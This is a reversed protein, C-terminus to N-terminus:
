SQEAKLARQLNTEGVQHLKIDAVPPRCDVGTAGMQRLEDHSNKHSNSKEEQQKPFIGPLLLKLSSLSM